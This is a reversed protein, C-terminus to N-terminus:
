KRVSVGASPLLSCVQKERQGAPLMTGGYQDTFSCIM